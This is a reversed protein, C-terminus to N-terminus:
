DCPPSNHPCFAGAREIVAHVGTSGFYMYGGPGPGVEFDLSEGTNLMVYKSTFSAQPTSLNKVPGSWLQAQAPSMSPWNRVLYAKTNTGLGSTGDEAYFEGSVRYSAPYPATFRVTAVEGSWGPHLVLGHAPVMAPYLPNTSSNAPLQSQNQAIVPLSNPVIQWGSFGAPFGSNSSTMPPSSSTQFNNFSGLPLSKWGYQWLDTTLNTSSNFEAAIEWSTAVPGVALAPGCLMAVACGIVTLAKLSSISM